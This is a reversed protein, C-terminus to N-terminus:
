LYFWGLSFELHTKEPVQPECAVQPSQLVQHELFTKAGPSPGPPSAPTYLHVGDGRSLKPQRPVASGDQLGFVGDGPVGSLIGDREQVRVEM